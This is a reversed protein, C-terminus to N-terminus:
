KKGSAATAKGAEKLLLFLDHAAEPSARQARDLDPNGEPDITWAGDDLPIDRTLRTDTADNMFKLIKLVLWPDANVSDHLLANRSITAMEANSFAPRDPEAVIDAKAPGVLCFSLALVAPTVNTPLWATCREIYIHRMGSQTVQLAADDRMIM